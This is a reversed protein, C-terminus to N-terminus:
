TATRRAPRAVIQPTSLLQRTPDDDEIVLGALGQALRRPRVRLQDDARPPDPVWAEVVFHGGSTLHRAANAFCRVQAAQDPLAYITNALLAVVAFSREVTTEAFDGCYTTI